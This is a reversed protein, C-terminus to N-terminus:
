SERCPKALVPVASAPRAFGPVREFILAVAFLV